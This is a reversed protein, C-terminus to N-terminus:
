LWRKNAENVNSQNINLLLQPKTQSFRSKQSVGLSDFFSKKREEFINAVYKNKWPYKKSWWRIQNLKVSKPVTSWNEPIQSM